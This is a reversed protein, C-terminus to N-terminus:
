RKGTRSGHSVVGRGIGGGADWFLFRRSGMM